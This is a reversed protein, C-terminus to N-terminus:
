TARVPAEQIYTAPRRLMVALLGNRAPWQILTVYHVSM